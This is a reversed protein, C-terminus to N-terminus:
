IKSYVRQANERLILASIRDADAPAAEGRDVLTDLLTTLGRTFLLAALHYLEPLGFADSSYLLKAFPTLELSERIVAESLAGTNHTALGVDMFVHDFVQALYGANRHFPYNHLLLVPVGHEETARLFRTLLLPDGERLNADKDGYGVHLQLPLGANIAAWALWGTVVPHAVRYAGASTPECEDLARAVDGADPEATPLELGTRYAAISKAGVATTEELARAVREPLEHAGVGAVLLDEVLGELRIIEHARGGALRALEAPGSIADPSYGTDVLFCETGSERLFRGAVETFGLDRRRALYDDATVLPDLDLVPACWRRVALGIMSDFLSTGLPSPGGSENLLREFETRDLDRLVVGHCHHDVLHRGTASTM